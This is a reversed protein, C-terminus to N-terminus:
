CMRQSLWQYIAANFRYQHIRNRIFPSNRLCWDRGENFCQSLKNNTLNLKMPILQYSQFSFRDNMVLERIWEFIRLGIQSFLWQNWPSDLCESFM